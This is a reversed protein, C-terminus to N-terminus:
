AGWRDRQGGPGFAPFDGEEMLILEVKFGAASLADKVTRYEAASDKYTFVSFHHQQPTSPQFPTIQQASNRITLGAGLRPKLIKLSGDDVPSCDKLNIEITGAANPRTLCYWVGGKLMTGITQTRLRVTKPTKAMRSKKQAQDSLRRAVEAAAIKTQSLLDEQQRIKERMDFNERGTTALESLSGVRDEILKARQEEEETLGESLQQSETDSFQRKLEQQQQLILQLRDIEIQMSNVQTATEALQSDISGSDTQETANPDVLTVVLMAIFLVAGFTNCITDLLMELSEQVLEESRAM